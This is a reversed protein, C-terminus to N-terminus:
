IFSDNPRADLAKPNVGEMVVIADKIFDSFVPYKRQTEVSSVFHRFTRNNAEGNFLSVIPKVLMPYSAKFTKQERLLDMDKGYNLLIERRSLNQNETCYIKRDVDSFIWPNDYAARGM